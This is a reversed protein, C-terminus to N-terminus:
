VGGQRAHEKIRRFHDQAELYAARNGSATLRILKATSCTIIPVIAPIRRPMTLRPQKEM